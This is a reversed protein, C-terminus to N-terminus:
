NNKTLLQKRNINTIMFSRCDDDPCRKETYFIKDVSFICKCKKCKYVQDKSM